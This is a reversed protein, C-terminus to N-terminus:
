SRGRLKVGGWDMLKASTIVQSAMRTSTTSTDLSMLVVIVFKVLSSRNPTRYMDVPLGQKVTSGHPCNSPTSHGGCHFIRIIIYEYGIIDFWMQPEAPNFHM